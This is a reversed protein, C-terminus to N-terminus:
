QSDGDQDLAALVEDLDFGDVLTADSVASGYAASSSKEREIIRRVRAIAAELARAHDVAEARQAIANRKESIKRGFAAMSVHPVGQDCHVFARHRKGDLLEALEGALRAIEADDKAALREPMASTPPNCAPCTGYNRGCEPCYKASM